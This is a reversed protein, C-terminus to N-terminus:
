RPVVQLVSISVDVASLRGCPLVLLTDAAFAAIVVKSHSAAIAVLVEVILLIFILVDNDRHQLAHVRLLELGALEFFHFELDVNFFNAVLDSHLVEAGQLFFEVCFDLRLPTLAKDLEIPNEIFDNLLFELEVSLVSQDLM